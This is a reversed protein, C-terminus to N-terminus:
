PDRRNVCDARALEQELRKLQRKGDDDKPFLKRNKALATELSKFVQKYCDNPEKLM